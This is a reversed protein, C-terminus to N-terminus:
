GLVSSASFTASLLVYLIFLIAVGLAVYAMGKGEPAIALISSVFVFFVLIVFLVGAVLSPWQWKLVSFLIMLVFFLIMFWFGFTVCKNSIKDKKDTKKDM